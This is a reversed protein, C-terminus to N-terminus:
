KSISPRICVAWVIFWIILVALCIIFTPLAGQKMVLPVALSTWIGGGMFPEHLLQKYGFSIAAGSKNDPDVTRMLMLGTATVGLGQGFEAISREFWGSAFMRPGMFLVVWLTWGFGVASLLLLPQWYDAVVRLQITAVAAVVLFDLCAGGIRVIQERCVLSDIRLKVMIIQLIVGAILCLPFLPFSELLHLNKLWEPAICDLSALATKLLYGGFVALGIIAIHFALSDISESRVTQKGASPQDDHLYIGRREQTGMDFFARASNIWGRRLAINILAMGGIIGLLMGITATTYGLASGEKWGLEEFTSSLGAVTGHGGEFGIEILNGFEPRVGFVPILVLLTVGLGVVYQGWALMQGLCLQPLSTRLIEKVSPLKCGIMMTAFVINILFGPLSSWNCYWESWGPTKGVSSIFILGLVGGVVSAPLFLRQLLPIWTRLAKGLLLLLCLGCFSMVAIM